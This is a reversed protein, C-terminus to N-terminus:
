RALEVQFLCSGWRPLCLGLTMSCAATQDWSTIGLARTLSFPCGSLARVPLFFLLFSFVVRWGLGWGASSDVVLWSIYGCLLRPVCERIFVRSCVSSSSPHRHCRASSATALSQVPHLQEQQGDAHEVDDEEGVVQERVLQAVSVGDGVREERVDLVDGDQGDREGAPHEAGDEEEGLVAVLLPAPHDCAVNPDEERQHAPIDNERERM